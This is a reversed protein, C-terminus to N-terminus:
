LCVSSLRCVSNRYCLGSRLTTVNPYFRNFDIQESSRCLFNSRRVCGLLLLMMVNQPLHHLCSSQDLISIFFSKAQQSRRDQVSTINSHYIYRLSHYPMHRTEQYIIRIARKQISELQRSQNKFVNHGWVVSCYELIPRIATTYFYKLSHNPLGSRNLVSASNWVTLQQRQSVRFRTLRSEAPWMTHWMSLLCRESRKWSTQRSWENATRKRRDPRWRMTWRHSLHASDSYAGTAGGRHAHAPFIDLTPRILPKLSSLFRLQSLLKIINHM